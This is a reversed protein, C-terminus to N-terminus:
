RVGFGMYRACTEFWWILAFGVPIAAALFAFVVLLWALACAAERTM